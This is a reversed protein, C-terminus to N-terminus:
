HLRFGQRKPRLPSRLDLPRGVCTMALGGFTATAIEFKM